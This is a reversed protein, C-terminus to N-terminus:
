AGLIAWSDLDEFAAGFREICALSVPDTQYGGGLALTQLFINLGYGPTGRYRTWAEDFPPAVPGLGDLYRALLDRESSRRDEVTLASGIFYGVDHAWSGTRVLQWDYFGVREGSLSYTNGVHADGHLVTQPGTMSAASSAAFARVLRRPTLSRPLLDFAGQGRLRRVGLRSGVLAIPAWGSKLRWPRLFRLAAPLPRDWYRAHLRALGDLGDGVEAVSLPSTVIGPVAGRAVVDELVLITDLRRDDVVAAYCVPREVLLDEGSGLLWAEPRVGGIAALVLRHHWSGQAKLFVTSPGSGAGYALSAVSRSTTGVDEDSLEVRSVVVGPFSSSLASTMWEPTVEAWARPVRLPTM